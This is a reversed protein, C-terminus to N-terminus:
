AVCTKSRRACRNKCGPCQIIVLGKEYARKTFEHTSRHGCDNATCTFTLSLRPEIPTATPTSPKATSSARGSLGVHKLHLLSPRFTRPGLANRAIAGFHPIRASNFTRLMSSALPSRHKHRGRPFCRSTAASEIRIEPSCFGGCM